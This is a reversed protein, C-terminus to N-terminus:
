MGPVRQVVKDHIYVANASNFRGPLDSEYLMAGVIKKFAPNALSSCAAPNGIARGMSQLMAESAGENLMYLVNLISFGSFVANDMSALTGETLM